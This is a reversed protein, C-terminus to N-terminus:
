DWTYNEYEDYGVVFGSTTTVEAVPGGSKIADYLVKIGTAGHSEPDLKIALYNTNGKAFEEYSLSYGGLGCAIVNDMNFGAEEFARLPAVASDDNLGTVLWHTVEPHSNLISQAVPLVQEFMGTENDETIMDAETLPSNDIIAAQYGMTREHLFSKFSVNVSMVKVVNGADFFGREKALEAMAEGGIYCTGYTDLGVHPVQNGETDMFPDNITVLPIGAENVVMDYVVPGMEADTICVALGKVGQALASEVGQMFAEDDLNADIGIYEVGLSAAMEKAGKEEAQFWPHTLMKCIYAIKVPEEMEAKKETGGAPAEKNGGAFLPAAVLATLLVMVAVLLTRQVGKNKM